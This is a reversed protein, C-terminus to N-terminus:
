AVGQSVRLIMQELGQQISARFKDPDDVVLAHVYLMQRGAHDHGLDVSLVGPGLNIATALTIIELETSITLPVGIIGPDLKPRPQLILRTMSANSAVIEWLLYLLFLSGNWLYRGYRRDIFALIVGGVGFALVYDWLNAVVPIIFPVVVAFLLNVLLLRVMRKQVTRLDDQM